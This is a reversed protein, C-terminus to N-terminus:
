SIREGDKNYINPAWMHMYMGLPKHLPTKMYAWGLPSYIAEIFRKDPFHNKNVMMAVPGASLVYLILLGFAWLVFLRWNFSDKEESPTMTEPEAEM